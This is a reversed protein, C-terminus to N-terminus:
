VEEAEEEGGMNWADSEGAIQVTNWPMQKCREDLNDRKHRFNQGDRADLPLFKVNHLIKMQRHPDDIRFKLVLSCGQWRM